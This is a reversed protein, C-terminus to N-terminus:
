SNCTKNLAPQLRVAMDKAESTQVKNFAEKAYMLRLCAKLMNGDDIAQGAENLSRQAIEAQSAPGKFFVVAGVIVIVLVIKDM